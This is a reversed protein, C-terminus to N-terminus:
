RPLVTFYKCFENFNNATSSVWSALWIAWGVPGISCQVVLIGIVAGAILLLLLINIAVIGLKEFINLEASPIFLLLSGLVWTVILSLGGSFGIVYWDYSARFLTVAATKGLGTVLREAARVVHFDKLERATDQTTKKLGKLDVATVLGAGPVVADFAERGALKGGDKVAEKAAVKGADKVAEGAVNKAGQGAAGGVGKAGSAVSRGRRENRYADKLKAGSKRDEAGRKLRDQISDSKKISEAREQAKPMQSSPVKASGNGGTPNNTRNSAFKDFAAGSVYDSAADGARGALTDKDSPRINGAAGGAGQPLGASSDDGAPQKVTDPEQNPEGM